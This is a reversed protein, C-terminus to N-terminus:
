KITISFAKERFVLCPLNSKSSGKLMINFSRVVTIFSSFSIIEPFSYTLTKDTLSM